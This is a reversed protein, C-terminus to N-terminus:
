VIALLFLLAMAILQPFRFQGFRCLFVFLVLSWWYILELLTRFVSLCSWCVLVLFVVFVCCMLIGCYIEIEM